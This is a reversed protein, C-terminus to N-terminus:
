DDSDEATDSEATALQDLRTQDYDTPQYGAAQLTRLYQGDAPTLALSHESSITLDQEAIAIAWAAQRREGPAGGSVTNRWRYPDDSDPSLWQAALRLSEVTAQRLVYDVLRDTLITATPIKATAMAAAHKRRTTNTRRRAADQARCDAEQDVANDDDKDGAATNVYILQGDSGIAAALTGAARANEIDEPDDLVGSWPVRGLLTLGESEAQEASAAAAKEQKDRELLASVVDRAPKGAPKSQYDLWGQTILEESLEALAEADKVPLDGRDLAAHAAEPLRLLRLRRAIHSQNRGVRRAIVRQSNGDATLAAYARAEQIPTLSERQINEVVMAEVDTGGSVLHDGSLVPVHRLDALRAAALRREGAILVWRASEPLTLNPRAAVFVERSAVLLAQLVGLERVSAALEEVGDVVQGRPNLPHRTIEDIPVLRSEGVPSAMADGTVPTADSGETKPTPVRRRNAIEERLASGGIRSRSMILGYVVYVHYVYHVTPTDRREGM